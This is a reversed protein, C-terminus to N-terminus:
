RRGSPTEQRSGGIDCISVYLLAAQEAIQQQCGTCPCPADSESPTFAEGRALAIADHLLLAAEVGESMLVLDRQVYQQLSEGPLRKLTPHPTRGYYDLMAEAAALLSQTEPLNM